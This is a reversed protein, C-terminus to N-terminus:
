LLGWGGGGLLWAEGPVVVTVGGGIVMGRRPFVVTVGGGGGYGHM